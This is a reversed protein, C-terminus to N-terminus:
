RGATASRWRCCATTISVARAASSRAARAADGLEACLHALEVMTATWRLNRPVDAFGARALVRFRARAAQSAPEVERARAGGAGLASSRRAGSLRHALRALAECDGRERALLASHATFCRACVPHEARRGLVLTERVLAAADDFRGELLAVGTDYVGLALAHRPAPARRRGRDAARARARRADGLEIRDSAVDLLSILARDGSRSRRWRWSRRTLERARRLSGARRARLAAHLARGAAGRSRGAARALARGRARARPRSSTRAGSTSIRSGRSSARAADCRARRASAALAESIASRAAEDRVGWDQLDLLRDRRAGPRRGRGASRALEMAQTLVERRRAARGRAACAEGLALLVGLRRLPDRGPRLDVVAAVAQEYHRAAQEWAGVGRACARRGRVRLAFPASPIQRRRARPPPPAALEAIVRTSDGSTSASWGSPRACICARVRARRRAGRLRGGPVARAHLALAAADTPRAEVVGARAAEDVCTSRMARAPPAGGRRRRDVDFDRGLVAAAAVLAPRPALARELARRILDLARAPLAVGARPVAGARALEGREGLLRIAERLFLPVGETRAFLESTLDPPAPEGSCRSSCSAVEGRSFPPARDRHLPEQARLLALTRTVRIGASARSRACRALWCCHRTSRSSPSISSCACRRRARGSCTRSCSWSRDAGRRGNCRAAVADFLLFRSREPARADAGPPERLGLLEGLEGAQHAIERM